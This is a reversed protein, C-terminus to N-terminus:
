KKRKGSKKRPGTKKRAKAAGKHKGPKRRNASKRAGDSPRPSKQMLRLNRSAPGAKKFSDDVVVLSMERRAVDVKVIRVTCTDGLSIQKGTRKSQMAGTYKNLRWQDAPAGPLEESRIVGDVLYKDIQVFVGFGTVGSVTGAFDEGVHEELLQLVLLERLAREASEANRETQSCHNGLRTLQFDDLMTEDNILKRALRKRDQANRPLRKSKARGLARDLADLARHVALDPYRRIPSTFHTYHESALAFHGILNPAYEAKTLTRLVAYSIARSTAGGEVGELLRQLEFRDPNATLDVGAVRAFNRLDNLDHAGPDPHIRRILPVGLDAFLRAVAENAEVMFMEIITHTFANDEPEADIVNGREDHVLVVEPLDLVIMGQKKRRARITRALRDAAKCAEILEDTYPADYRAHERALKEDGDILAQAEIYTLRHASQIVSRAFRTSVVKGTEDYTMFASRAYRPVGPMLSCVGNSLVEPLMPIVRKPLYVSNGRQFAEEDLRSGPQVFASVDAIHVGLELGKNTQTISIADDYDKADPPDITIIFTDRLDLRDGYDGARTARDYERTVAGAEEIVDAPFKGPLNYAHIVAETEVDAEGGAGLVELLVGEPVFRQGPEPFKTLQVVVKDGEVANKSQVDRVLVPDALSKGDVRVVFQKGRRVLTGVFSTNKRELIEVVRGTYPSRGDGGRGRRHEVTARVLDGTLAGGLAPGPIFLDGHANPTDPMLFGFGRDHVSIRGIIERGIPPLAITDSAGMVVQGARVMRALAEKFASVDEQLVGLEEILEEAQKPEYAKHAVHRIIRQQQLESM